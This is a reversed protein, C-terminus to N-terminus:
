TVVITVTFRGTASSPPEWSRRLALRVDARGPALPTLVLVREGGAGAATGGPVFTDQIDVALGEIPELQWRYGTTPTEPLRLELAEGVGLDITSGSDGSGLHRSATM